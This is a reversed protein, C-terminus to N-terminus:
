YEDANAYFEYYKKYLEKIQDQTLNEFEKWLPKLNYKGFYWASSNDESLLFASCRKYPLSHLTQYGNICKVRSLTPSTEHDRGLCYDDAIKFQKNIDGFYVLLDDLENNSNEHLSILQQETANQVHYLRLLNFKLTEKGNKDFFDRPLVSKKYKFGDEYSTDNKTKIILFGILICTIVIITISFILKYSKKM